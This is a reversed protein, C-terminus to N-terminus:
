PLQWVWDGEESSIDEGRLEHGQGPNTLFVLGGDDTENWAVSYLIYRDGGTLRYKLPQGTIVDHPLTAAFQPTLSELSEPLRGNAQRYRELACALMATDVATQGFATKRVFKDMAPLLLKSFFRHRVYAVPWSSGTLSAIRKTKDNAVVPDIRRNKLDVTPLVDQQFIRCYHLKELELWGEPGVGMLVGAFDTQPQGTINGLLNYKESSLAVYDVIACGWAREGALNRKADALFDFQALKQQLERLQPESWQGLGEAIPQLAIYIEAMRVLQSILLPEDRNAQTLFLMLRVDDFAPETEGLALRASARLALVQCLHKLIGLHPLLIV